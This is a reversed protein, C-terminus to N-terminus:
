EKEKREKIEDKIEKMQKVEKEKKVTENKMKVIEVDKKKEIANRAKIEDDKQGLEEVM